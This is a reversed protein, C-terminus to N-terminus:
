CGGGIEYITNYMAVINETPSVAQLNHCPACIWRANKYIEVSERVEGIVDNVTGFALTHQNDISGHLAIRDGFDAVLERRDMGLSRWQIPDLIEIGVKEILDPVFLRAAGCSHFQVHIGFSRALDALRIQHPLLFRRYMPLSILPGNQSGLDDSLWSLDIRGKGAEFCRRNHEYYFDSIHGLIADAIDPRLALDEYTREMGRMFGYFMSLEVCVSTTPYYGDDDIAQSVVSYDFDDADPWRHAHVEDVSEIM